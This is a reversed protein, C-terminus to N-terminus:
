ETGSLRWATKQYSFGNSKLERLSPISIKRQWPKVDGRQCVCSSIIETSRQMKVSLVSFRQQALLHKASGLAHDRWCEEQEV